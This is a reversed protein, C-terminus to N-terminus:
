KRQVVGQTSFWARMSRSDGGFARVKLEEYLISCQMISDGGLTGRMAERECTLYSEKLAGISPETTPARTQANAIPTALAASLILLAPLPARCGAVITHM